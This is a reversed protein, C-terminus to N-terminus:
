YSIRGYHHSGIFDGAQAEDRLHTLITSHQAPTLNFDYLFEDGDRLWLRRMDDRAEETMREWVDPRVAYAYVPPIANVTEGAAQMGFLRHLGLADFVSLNPSYALLMAQHPAVGRNILRAFSCAIRYAEMIPCEKTVPFSWTDGDPTAVSFQGNTLKAGTVSYLASYFNITTM